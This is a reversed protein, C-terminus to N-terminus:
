VGSLEVIDFTSEERPLVIRVAQGYISMPCGGGRTCVDGAAVGHRLPVSRMQM